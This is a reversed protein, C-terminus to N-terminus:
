QHPPPPPLAKLEFFDVQVAKGANTNAIAGFCPRGGAFGPFFHTGIETWSRGDYSVSGAYRIEDQKRIKLYYEKNANSIGGNLRLRAIQNGIIKRFMLLDRGGSSTLWISFAQRVGTASNGITIYFYEWSFSMSNDSELPATFVLKVIFEYPDPVAGTYCLENDVDSLVLLLYGKDIAWSNTGENTIRWEPRLQTGAFDDFFNIEPNQALVVSNSVGGVLFVLWSLVLPLWGRRRTQGTNM